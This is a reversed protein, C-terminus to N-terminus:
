RLLPLSGTLRAVARKPGRLALGLHAVAESPTQALQEGFAAYDTTQQGFVPFGIVRVGADLARTRLAPLEDAPARLVPLGTTILGPHHDGGADVLDAGVLDPAGAGLSVALVAAANAALGPPLAEDVVVVCRAPATSEQEPM